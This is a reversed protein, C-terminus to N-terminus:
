RSVYQKNEQDRWIADVQIKSTMFERWNSGFNFAKISDATLREPADQFVMLYNLQHEGWFHSPIIKWLSDGNEKAWIDLRGEFAYQRMLKTIELVAPFVGPDEPLDAPRPEWKGKYARWIADSLWVDRKPTKIKELADRISEAKVQRAADIVPSYSLPAGTHHTGIAQYPQPALADVQIKNRRFVPGLLWLLGGVILVTPALFVYDRIVPAIDSNCFAEHKGAWTCLNQLAISVTTSMAAWVVGAVLVIIAWFKGSWDM